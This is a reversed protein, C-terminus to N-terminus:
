LYAVWGTIGVRFSSVLTVSSDWLAVTLSTAGLHVVVYVQRHSWCLLYNWYSALWVVKRFFLFLLTCRKIFLVEWPVSNLINKVCYWDHSLSIKTMVPKNQGAQQLLFVYKWFLLWVKVTHKPYFGTWSLLSFVNIHLEPKLAVALLLANRACYLKDSSSLTLMWCCLSIACQLWWADSVLMNLSSCSLSHLSWTM